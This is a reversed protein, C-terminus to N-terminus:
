RCSLEWHRMRRRGYEKHDAIMITYAGANKLAKMSDSLKSDTSTDILVECEGEVLFDKGETFTLDENTQFMVFASESYSLGTKQSSAIERHTLFCKGIVIRRYSMSSLYLTCSTNTYM